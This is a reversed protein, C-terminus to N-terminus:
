NAVPVCSNYKPVNKVCIEFWVGHKAHLCFERLKKIGHGFNLIDIYDFDIM